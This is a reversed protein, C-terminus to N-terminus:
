TSSTWELAEAAKATTWAEAFRTGKVHTFCADRLPMILERREAPTMMPSLKEGLATLANGFSQALVNFMSTLETNIVRTRLVEGKGEQIKIIDKEWQRQSAVLSMWERRLASYQSMHRHKVAYEMQSFTAQVLARIQQLGLDSAMAAGVDLQMTPMYVDGEAPAANQATESKETAVATPSRAEDGQEFRLIYDPVRWEMNRRWWAGMQDLQDFPPLDPVAKPVGKSEWRGQSIWRKLKRTPDKGDIGIQEAYYRLPHRYNESTVRHVVARTDPIIDKIELHEDKSLKGGIAWKRVLAALRAKQLDEPMVGEAISRQMIEREAATMTGGKGVKQVVNRLDASLVKSALDPSIDAM